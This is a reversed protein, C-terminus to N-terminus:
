GRHSPIARAKWTARADNLSMDNAGGTLDPDSAQASDDEWGCIPCIEFNGREGIVKSGCCDCPLLSEKKKM